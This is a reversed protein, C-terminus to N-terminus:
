EKSYEKSRLFKPVSDNKLLMLCAYQAESFMNRNVNSELSSKIHKVHEADVNLCFQSSDMFYKKFIEKATSILSENSISSHSFQFQQAEVWFLLNEECHKSELFLRFKESQEPSSLIAMLPDESDVSAM